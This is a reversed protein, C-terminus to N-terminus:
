PDVNFITGSLNDRFTRLSNDSYAAYYGLLVCMEEVVRRFGAIVCLMLSRQPVCVSVCVRVYACVSM